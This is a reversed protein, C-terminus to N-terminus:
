IRCNAAEGVKGEVLAMLGPLSFCFTLARRRGRSIIQCRHILNSTLFHGLRFRHHPFCCPSRNANLELCAHFDRKIFFGRPHREPPNGLYAAAPSLKDNKVVIQLM